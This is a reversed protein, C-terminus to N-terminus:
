ATLSNAPLTMGVLGAEAENAPMLDAKTQDRNPEDLNVECATERPSVGQGRTWAPPQRRGCASGGPGIGGWCTVPLGRGRNFVWRSARRWPGGHRWVPGGESLERVLAGFQPCGYSEGPQEPNPTQPTM